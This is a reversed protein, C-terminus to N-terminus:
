ARLENTGAEAQKAWRRASRTGRHVRPRRRKMSGMIRVLKGIAQMFAVPNETMVVRM